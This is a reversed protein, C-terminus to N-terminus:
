GVWECVGVWEGVWESKEKDRIFAVVKALLTSTAVVARKEKRDVVEAWMAM